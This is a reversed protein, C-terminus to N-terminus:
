GACWYPEPPTLTALLDRCILTYQDKLEGTTTTRTLRDAAEELRCWADGRLQWVSNYAYSDDAMTRRKM